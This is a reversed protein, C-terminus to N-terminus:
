VQGKHEIFRNRQKSRRKIRRKRVVSQIWNDWIQVYMFVKVAWSALLFTQHSKLLPVRTIICMLYKALISLKTKCKNVSFIDFLLALSDNNHLDSHTWPLKLAMSIKVYSYYHHHHRIIIHLILKKLIM